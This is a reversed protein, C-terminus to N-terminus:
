DGSESDISAEEDDKLEKHEAKAKNVYVEFDPFDKELDKIIIKNKDTINEGEVIRKFVRNYANAKRSYIQRFAEQHELGYILTLYDSYMVRWNARYKYDELDFEIFPAPPPQEKARYSDTIVQIKEKYMKETVSPNLVDFELMRLDDRSIYLLSGKHMGTAKLYHFVQLEEKVSPKMKTEITNFVHASKSKVDIIKKELHDDALAEIVKEFANKTGEPLWSFESEMAARAKSRDVYGGATTDSRGSVELLGKYQHTVREQTNQVIGARSLVGLVIQEEIHGAEMKRRARPSLPNTPKVGTMALYVDVPAKDLETAWIRDRPEREREQFTDFSVNWVEAVKWERAITINNTM